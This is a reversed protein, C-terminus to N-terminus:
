VCVPCSTLSARGVQSGTSRRSGRGWHSVAASAKFKSGPWTWRRHWASSSPVEPSTTGVTPCVSPCSARTSVCVSKLCDAVALLERHDGGDHDHSRHRQGAARCHLPRHLLLQPQRHDRLRAGRRGEGGDRGRQLGGRAPGEGCGQHLHHLPHAEGGGCRCPAASHTLLAASSQTQSDTETHRHTHIHTGALGSHQSQDGTKSLGPGEARVKAADHSPEVRVRFPSIPIEQRPSLPSSNGAPLSLFHLPM